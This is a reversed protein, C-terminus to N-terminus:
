IEGSYGQICREEGGYTGCVWGMKSYEIQVGPYRLSVERYRFLLICFNKWNYFPEM